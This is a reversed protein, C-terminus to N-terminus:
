SRGGNKTDKCKCNKYDKAQRTTKVCRRCMQKPLYDKWSRLEGWVMRKSDQAKSLYKALYDVAVWIAEKKKDQGWDDKWKQERLITYEFRGISAESFASRLDEMPVYPACWLGHTHVHHKWMKGGWMTEMEKTIVEVVDTGGVAGISEAIQGRAMAFEKKFKKLDPTPDMTWESPWTMTIFKLHEWKAGTGGDKWMKTQQLHMRVMELRLGAERARKHQQYRRNCEDCRDPYGVSETRHRIESVRDALVPLGEVPTEERHHYAVGM